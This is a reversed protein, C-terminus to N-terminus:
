TRTVSPYQICGILHEQSLGGESAGPDQRPSTGARKFANRVGAVAWILVTASAIGFLYPIPERLSIVGLTFSVTATTLLAGGLLWFEEVGRITKVNPGLKGRVRGLVVTCPVVGFCFHGIAHLFAWIADSCSVVVSTVLGVVLCIMQLAASVNALTRFFPVGPSAAYILSTQLM